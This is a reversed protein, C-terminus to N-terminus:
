RVESVEVVIKEIRGTFKTEEPGYGVAEHVPTQNDLGVDATEDASFVSPRTREIRGAAVQEGNVLLAAEGGKGLGPGAYDFVLEVTAEGAPLATTGEAVDRHLGLWNYTYGPKGDRMYLAWGGFRGGQALIVGSAGGEPITLRATIKKSRNKVNIFVNELMGQMGEYLTLSTRSGMLDPRGALMPNV